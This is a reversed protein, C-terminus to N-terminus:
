FHLRVLVPILEDIAHTENKSADELPEQRGKSEIENLEKQDSHGDQLLDKLFDSDLDLDIVNDISTFKKQDSIVSDKYILGREIGPPVTLLETNKVPLYDDDVHIKRKSIIDAPDLGGPLFPIYSSKGRVLDEKPAPNRKM